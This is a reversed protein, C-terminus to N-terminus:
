DRIVETNQNPILIKQLKLQDDLWLMWDGAETKFDLRILEREGGRIEIKERGAYQVNVLLSARAHPNLTGMQTSQKLPCQIQGGEQKCSTALYRWALVERQIFFYDDLISTSSPLLFPQEQAKDTPTKMFREMLFSESPLVVAQSQGPSAEKWEYKQLEGGASLQLQSTQVAKEAGAETKFESTVSSGAPNQQISFTETAIRRGGMFVGFSGSDVQGPAKDKDVAGATGCFLAVCVILGNIGAKRSRDSFGSFMRNSMWDGVQM